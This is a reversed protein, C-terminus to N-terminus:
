TGIGRDAWGPLDVVTLDIEGDALEDLVDAPATSDTILLDVDGLRCIRARSVAGVKSGDAVVIRRRAAALMRQKVAVEPLNVNTIGATPDVGNCSIIALDAHMRDLLLDALPDVLSHQLPRLTGGTLIVTFRPIHPELEMAVTLGSTVVTIDTLDERQTMARAVATTTTGVDLIVTSRSDVLQAATHAVAAKEAAQASTTEEMPREARLWRSAMAGGRVRRVVGREALQDVDSRATVTSVDFRSAIETIPVFGQSAVLDAVARRRGATGQSAHDV